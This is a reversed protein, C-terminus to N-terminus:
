RAIVLVKISRTDTRGQDTSFLFHINYTEGATGGTLWTVLLAAPIGRTNVNVSGASATIGEDATVAVSTVLEGSELWPKALQTPAPSLDLGFDLVASPDKILTPTVPPLAM